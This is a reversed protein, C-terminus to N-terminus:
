LSPRIRCADSLAPVAILDDHRAAVCGLAPLVDLGHGPLRLRAHRLPLDLLLEVSLGHEELFGDSLPLIDGVPVHPKLFEAGFVKAEHLVRQRRARQISVVPHDVLADDRREAMDLQGVQAGDM